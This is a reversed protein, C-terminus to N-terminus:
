AHDLFTQIEAKLERRKSREEDLEKFWRESRGEAEQVRKDLKKMEEGRDYLRFSQVVWLVLLIFAIWLWPNDV